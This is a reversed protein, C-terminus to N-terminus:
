WKPTTTLNRRHEVKRSVAVRTFTLAARTVREISPDIKTLDINFTTSKDEVAIRITAKAMDFPKAVRPDTLLNESQERFITLM